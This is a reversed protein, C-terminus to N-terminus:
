REVTDAVAAVAAPDAVDVPMVVPQGGAAKVEAAAAELGAEGRACLVVTDGRRAFEVACARGVGGSAGTVVVTRAM